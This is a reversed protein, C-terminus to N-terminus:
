KRVRKVYVDGNLMFVDLEGRFYENVSYKLSRAMDNNNYFKGEDDFIVVCELGSRLIRELTVRSDFQKRKKHEKCLSAIEVEEFIM